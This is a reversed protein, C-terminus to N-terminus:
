TREGAADRVAHAAGSTVTAWDREALARKPVMWSGGVALVSPLELYAPATSPTIGGTPVFRVTPWIAALAEILGPGGLLEAPFLKVVDVGSNVAHQLETATAIGPIVPLGHSRATEVVGDDFGPSVVFRAGADIAEVADSTSLVSGAGVVAAPVADVIRRIAVIAAPTRLTVEIATLGGAVLAGALPAADDADDITLVPVVRTTALLEIVASSGATM